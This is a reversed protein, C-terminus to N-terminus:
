TRSLCSLIHMNHPHAYACKLSRWSKSLVKQAPFHVGPAAIKQLAHWSSVGQLPALMDMTSFFPSWQLGNFNCPQIRIRQRGRDKSIKRRRTMYRLTNYSPRTRTAPETARKPLLLATPPLATASSEQLLLFTAQESYAPAKVCFHVSSNLVRWSYCAHYQIVSGAAWQSM